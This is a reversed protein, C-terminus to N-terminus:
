ECYKFLLEKNEAKADRRGKRICSLGINERSKM